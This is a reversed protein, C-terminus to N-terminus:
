FNSRSLVCDVCYLKISTRVFFQGVGGNLDRVFFEEVILDFIIDECSMFGSLIGICLFCDLFLFFLSGCWINALSVIRHSSIWIKETKGTVLRGLKRRKEIVFINRSERKKFSYYWRLLWVLSNISIILTSLLSESLYRRMCKHNTTCM